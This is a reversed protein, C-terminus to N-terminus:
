WFSDFLTTPSGLVMPVAALVAPIPGFCPGCPGDGGGFNPGCGYVSDCHNFLIDLPFGIVNALASCFGPGMSSKGCDKGYVMPGPAPCPGESKFAWTKIITTPLPYPCCEVPVFLPKPACDDGCVGGYFAFSTGSAAIMLALIGLVAVTRKVM